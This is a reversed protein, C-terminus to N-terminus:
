VRYEWCFGGCPPREHVLGELAKQGRAGRHAGRLAGAAREEGLKPRIRRTAKWHRHTVSRLTSPQTPYPPIPPCSLAAM